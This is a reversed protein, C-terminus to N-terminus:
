SKERLFKGTKSDARGANGGGWEGYKLLEFEEDFIVKMPILM